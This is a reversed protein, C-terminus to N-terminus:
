GPVKARAAEILPAFANGTAMTRDAQRAETDSVRHSTAWERRLGEADRVLLSTPHSNSVYVGKNHRVYFEAVSAAEDRGLRKVLRALNSNVTADRIPPTGYRDHYATSYAMWTSASSAEEGKGGRRAAGASPPETTKTTTTSTTTITTQPAQSESSPQSATESSDRKGTRKEASMKGGVRGNSAQARSYALERDARKNHLMGNERVFFAGAVLEVSARESPTIAGCIRYLVDMADPLPGGRMYYEDLLDRYAGRQEMSLGAMKARADGVYWSYWPKASM